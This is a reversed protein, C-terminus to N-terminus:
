SSSRAPSSARGGSDDAGWSPAGRTLCSRDPGRAWRLRTCKFCKKNILHTYVSIYTHIYIYIYIHIYIYIYICIHLSLSLSLSVYVCMYICLAQHVDIEETASMFATKTDIAANQRLLINQAGVVRLDHAVLVSSFALEVGTNTKTFNLTFPKMHLHRLASGIQDSLLGLGTLTWTPEEDMPVVVADKLQLKVPMDFGALPTPQSLKTGAVNVAYANDVFVTTVTGPPPPQRQVHLLRRNTYNNNNSSSSSYYYYRNYNNM